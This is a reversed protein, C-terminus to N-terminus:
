KKELELYKKYIKDLAGIINDADASSLEGPKVLNKIAKFQSDMCHATKVEYKNSATKSIMNLPIITKCYACKLKRKLPDIGPPPDMDFPGETGCDPCVLITVIGEDEDTSPMVIEESVEHPIDMPPIQPSPTGLCGCPPPADYDKIPVAPPAPPMDMAKPEPIGQEEMPISKVMAADSPQPAEGYDRRARLPQGALPLTPKPEKEPATEVPGKLVKPVDTEDYDRKRKHEKEKKEKGNRINEV